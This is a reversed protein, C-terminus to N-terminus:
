KATFNANIAVRRSYKVPNSGHHLVRGSMVICMNKKPTVRNVIDGEYWFFDGDTEHPYFVITYFDNGDLDVHKDNLHEQGVNTLMVVRIRLLKDFIINLREFVTNLLTEFRPAFESITDKNCNYVEHSFGFNLQDLSRDNVDIDEHWYFPFNRSLIDSNLLDLDEDDLLNEIIQVFNEM